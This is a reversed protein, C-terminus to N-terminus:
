PRVAYPWGLEGFYVGSSLVWANSVPIKEEWGDVIQIAEFPAGDISRWLMKPGPLYIINREADYAMGSTEIRLRMSSSFARKDISLPVAIDLPTMTQSAIDYVALYLACADGLQLCLLRGPTHRCFYATDPLSTVACKGSVLDFALLETAPPAADTNLSIDHFAYLTGNEVFASRLNRPYNDKTQYLRSVDLRADLEHWGDQDIPGIRGSRYNFGYLGEDSPILLSVTETIERQLSASQKEFPIEVNYRPEAPVHAYLAYSDTAPDWAYLDGSLMLQYVRNGQATRSRDMYAEERPLQCAEVLATGFLQEAQADARAAIPTALLFVALMASPLRRLINRNIPM